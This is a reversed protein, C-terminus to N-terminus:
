KRRRVFSWALIGFGGLLALSQPEPVVTVDSFSQSLALDDIVLTPGATASGQRLNVTGVINTEPSTSTWTSTLYATNNGEVSNDTPNVYVSATDNLAGAVKNYAVIARYDTGFSLVTSGYTTTAGTGSTEVYGLVFGSGSSKIFVREFFATSNGAPGPSTHLFYDGAGQAASVNITVGIYFSTGDAITLPAGILANVDQGNNALPVRGSSVQIPNVVSTGTITWSDDGILPGNAYSFTELYYPSAPSHVTAALLGFIGYFLKRM